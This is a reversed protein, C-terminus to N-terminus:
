IVRKCQTALSEDSRIVTIISDTVQNPAVTHSPFIERFNKQLVMGVAANSNCGMMQSLSAVTEGEGRAIDNAVAVENGAVFRDMRLAVEDNPNDLCNSTGTTIGFTQSGSTGNTTAAFIQGGSNGIVMSGLGCGAMGYPRHFPKSAHKSHKSGSDSMDSSEEVPAAKKKKSAKKEAAYGQSISLALIGVLMFLYKNTKM